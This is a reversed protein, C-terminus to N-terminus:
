RRRRALRSKKRKRSTQAATEAITMATHASAVGFVKKQGSKGIPPMPMAAMNMAISAKPGPVTM